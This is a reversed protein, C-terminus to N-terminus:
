TMMPTKQLYTSIWCREPKILGHKFEKSLAEDQHHEQYHVELRKVAEKALSLLAQNKTSLQTIANSVRSDANNELLTKGKRNLIDLDKQWDFVSQLKIQFEELIKGKDQM